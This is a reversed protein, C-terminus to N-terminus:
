GEGCDVVGREASSVSIMGCLMSLGGVLVLVLVLVPAWSFMWGFALTRLRGMLASFGITLREFDTFTCAAAVLGPCLVSFPNKLGLLVGAISGVSGFGCPKMEEETFHVSRRDWLREISLPFCPALLGSVRSVRSRSEDLVGVGTVKTGELSSVFKMSGIALLSSQDFSNVFFGGGFHSPWSSSHMLRFVFFGPTFKPRVNQIQGLGNPGLPFLSFPVAQLHGVKIQALSQSEEVIYSPQNQRSGQTQLGAKQNSCPPLALHNALTQAQSGRL